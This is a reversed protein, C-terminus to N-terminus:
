PSMLASFIAPSTHDGESMRAPGMTRIAGFSTTIASGAATLVIYSRLGLKGLTIIAM